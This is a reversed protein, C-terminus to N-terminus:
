AHQVDITSRSFRLYPAEICEIITAGADVRHDDFALNMSPKGFRKRYRHALFEDIVVVPVNLARAEHVVKNRGRDLGRMPLSVIRYGRRRMMRNSSFSHCLRRM